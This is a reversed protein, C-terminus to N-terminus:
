LFTLFREYVKAISNCAATLKPDSINKETIVRITDGSLRKLFDMHTKLSSVPKGIAGIVGGISMKLAFIMLLTEKQTRARLDRIDLLAKYIILLDNLFSLRVKDQEPDIEYSIDVPNFLDYDRFFDKNPGIVFDILKEPDDSDVNYGLKELAAAFCGPWLSESEYQGLSLLYVETKKVEVYQPTYEGRNNKWLKVTIFGNNRDRVASGIYGPKILTINALARFFGNNALVSGAIDYPMTSHVFLPTDIKNFAADSDLDDPNPCEEQLLTGTCLAYFLIKLNSLIEYQNQTIEFLLRSKLSTDMGKATEMRQKKAVLFYADLENMIDSVLDSEATYSYDEDIKFESYQKLLSLLEASKPDIGGIGKYLNLYQAIIERFYMPNWGDGQWVYEYEAFKEYEEREIKEIFEEDTIKSM